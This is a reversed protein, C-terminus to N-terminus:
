QQRGVAGRGAPGPDGYVDHGAEWTGWSVPEAFTSGDSIWVRLDYEEADTSPAFLAALDDDGDGDFDGAQLEPDFYTFPENPFELVKELSFEEGDLGALWLNVPEGEYGAQHGVLEHAGDGDFDGTTWEGGAVSERRWLLRETFSGDELDLVRLADDGESWQVLVLEVRGDGDLDAFHTSSVALDDPAPDYTWETPAEFRGTGDNLAVSAKGVKRPEGGVFLRVLDLDGDHDADVMHDHPTMLQTGDYYSVPLALSQRLITRDATRDESGLRAQVVPTAEEFRHLGVSVLDNLGDGDVDGVLATDSRWRTHHVPRFRDGASRARLLTRDDRKASSTTEDRWVLDALGDHDTDMPVASSATEAPDDGAAPEGDLAWWTVGGGVLALAAVGAGVLAWRRRPQAAAGGAVAGGTGAPEALEVLASSLDRATAFGGDRARRLLANVRDAYPTQPPAEVDAPPLTASGALCAAFLRAVRTIEDRAVAGVPSGPATADDLGVLYVHPMTRADQVWVSAPEVDVGTVGARHLDDVGAAVQSALDAALGVPMPGLRALLADLREGPALQVALHVQGDAVGLDLVHLVYPSSVAGMVAALHRLRTAEAEPAVHLAVERGLLEDKALHTGDPRTGRIEYRGHRASM